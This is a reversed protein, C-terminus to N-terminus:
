RLVEHLGEPTGDWVGYTNGTIEQLEPIYREHSPPVRLRTGKAENCERCARVKYRADERWSAAAVRRRAQNRTILHDVQVARRVGCYACASM